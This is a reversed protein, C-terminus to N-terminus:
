SKQSKLITSELTTFALERFDRDSLFGAILSPLINLSINISSKLQMTAVFSLFDRNPRGRSKFHIYATIIRSVDDRDLNLISDTLRLMAASSAIREIEVLDEQDHKKLM